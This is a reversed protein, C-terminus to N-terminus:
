GMAANSARPIATSVDNRLGENNECEACVLAMQPIGPGDGSPVTRVRLGCLCVPCPPRALSGMAGICCARAADGKIELTSMGHENWRERRMVGQGGGDGDRLAQPTLPTSYRCGGRNAAVRPVYGLPNKKRKPASACRMM